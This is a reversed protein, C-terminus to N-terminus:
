ISLIRPFISRRRYHTSYISALVYHDGSRTREMSVRFQARKRQDIAIVKLYFFLFARIFPSRQGCDRFTAVSRKDDGEKALRKRQTDSHLSRSVSLRSPALRERRGKLTTIEHVAIRDFPVVACIQQNLARGSSFPSFSPSLGDYAFVLYV